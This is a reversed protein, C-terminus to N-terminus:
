KKLAADIEAKFVEFPQAGELFAGNVFTAPTGGVGADNGSAYDRAVRAAMEGSDLCSTFNAVNLKLNTAMTKYLESGLTAQNAFLFDKAKWFADDGGLKAACETAEAAKQAQPHIQSLPFHRYVLKVDKPYAAMIQAITPEHRSCYPCQLDSYEILTVKANAPGKVHDVKPDIAAVPKVPAAVQQQGAPQTPAYASPGNAASAQFGGNMLSGFAFALGIVSTLAIGLFLGTFFM